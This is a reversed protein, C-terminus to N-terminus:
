IGFFKRGLNMADLLNLSRSGAFDPPTLAWLARILGAMKAVTAKFLAFNAADTKSFREIGACTKATDRWLLLPAGDQSAAILVPDIPVIQLGNQNLKLENVLKAPFSGCVHAGTSYKFGPHIEETSAAGGIVPRRELVLVKKGAKALYAAAVLGNHGAGVVIVDYGAM